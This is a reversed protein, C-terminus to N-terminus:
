FFCVFYYNKQTFYTWNKCFRKYFFALVLFFSLDKRSRERKGPDNETNKTLKVGKTTFFYGRRFCFNDIWKSPSSYMSDEILCNPVVIAQLTKIPFHIWQRLQFLLFECLNQKIVLYLCHQWKKKLEPFKSFIQNLYQRVQDLRVQHTSYVFHTYNRLYKREFKGKTEM